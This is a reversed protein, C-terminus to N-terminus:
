EKHQEVQSKEYYDLCDRCMLHSCNLETANKIIVLCIPCEYEKEENVMKFAFGSPISAMKELCEDCKINSENSPENSIFKRCMSCNQRNQQCEAMEEEEEEEENSEQHSAAGAFDLKSSSMTFKKILNQIKKNYNQNCVVITKEESLLM